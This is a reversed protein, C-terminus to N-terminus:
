MESLLDQQSLFPPGFDLLLQEELRLDRIESSCQALLIHQPISLQRPVTLVARVTCQGLPAVFLSRARTAMACSQLSILPPEPLRSQQHPSPSKELFSM